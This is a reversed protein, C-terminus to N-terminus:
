FSKHCIPLVYFGNENLNEGYNMEFLTSFVHQLSFGDICCPDISNM